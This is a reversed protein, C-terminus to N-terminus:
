EGDDGGPGDKRPRTSEPLPEIPKVVNEGQPLDVDPINDDDYDNKINKSKMTCVKRELITHTSSLINHIFCEYCKKCLFPYDM